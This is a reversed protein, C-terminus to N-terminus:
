NLDDHGDDSRQFHDVGQDDCFAALPQVFGPVERKRTNSFPKGIV